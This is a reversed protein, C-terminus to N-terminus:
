EKTDQAGLIGTSGAKWFWSWLTEPQDSLFRSSGFPLLGKWTDITYCGGMRNAQMSSEGSPQDLVFVQILTSNPISLFLPPNLQGMELVLAAKITPCFVQWNKIREPSHLLYVSKSQSYNKQPNKPM